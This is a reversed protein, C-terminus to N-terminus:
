ASWSTPLPASLRERMLVGPGRRGMDFITVAHKAARLAHAAFAGSVGAGLVAVRM